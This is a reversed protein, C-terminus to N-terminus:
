KKRITKAPHRIQMKRAKTEAEELEKFQAELEKEAEKLEVRVKEQMAIRQKKKNLKSQQWAFGMRQAPIIVAYSLLLLLISFPWFVASLMPIPTCWGTKDETAGKVYGFTWAGVGIYGLVSLIIILATLM